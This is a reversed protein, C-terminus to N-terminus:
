HKAKSYAKKRERLKKKYDTTLYDEVFDEKSEYYKSQKEYEESLSMNKEFLMNIAKDYFIHGKLEKLCKNLEIKLEEIQDNLVIANESICFAYYHQLLSQYRLFKEEGEIRFALETKWEDDSLNYISDYEKRNSFLHNYEDWYIERCRCDSPSAKGEDYALVYYTFSSYRCRCEMYEAMLQDRKWANEELYIRGFEDPSSNNRFDKKMEYLLEDKETVMKSLCKKYESMIEQEVNDYRKLPIQEIEIQYRSVNYAYKSAGILQNLSDADHRLKDNYIDVIKKISDRNQLWISERHSYNYKISGVSEKRIPLQSTELILDKAKTTIPVQSGNIIINLSQPQIKDNDCGWVIDTERIKFVDLSKADPVSMPILINTEEEITKNPFILRYKAMLTYEERDADYKLPMYEFSYSPFANRCYRYFLTEMEKEIRNNYEDSKEFDGKTIWNNVSDAVMLKLYGVSTKELVKRTEQIEKEKREAATMLSEAQKLERDFNESLESFQSAPMRMMADLAVLSLAQDPDSNSFLLGLSIQEELSLQKEYGYYLIVYYKMYIEKRRQQYASLDQAFLELSFGVLAIIIFIRKLRFFSGSIKNPLVKMLRNAEIEFLSKDM